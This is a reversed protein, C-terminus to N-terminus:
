FFDTDYSYWGFMTQAGSQTVLAYSGAYSGTWTFFFLFFTLFLSIPAIYAIVKPSFWVTCHMTYDTPGTPEPPPPPTPSPMASFEPTPSPTPAPPPPPVPAQAIAPATFTASCMPCKMQQGAYQDLITLEKQCSPCLLKM